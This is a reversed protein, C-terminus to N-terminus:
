SKADSEGEDLKARIAAQYYKWAEELGARYGEAYTKVPETNEEVVKCYADWQETSLERIADFYTNHIGWGNAKTAELAAWVERKMERRGEARAAEIQDPMDIDAMGAAHWDLFGKDVGFCILAAILEGAGHWEDASLGCQQRLWGSSAPEDQIIAEALRNIVSIKAQAFAEWKKIQEDTPIATAATLQEKLREVERELTDIQEHQDHWWTPPDVPEGHCGCEHGSCCFKIGWAAGKEKVLQNIEAILPERAAAEANSIERLAKHFVHLRLIMQEPVLEAVRMARDEPLEEASPQAPKPTDSM